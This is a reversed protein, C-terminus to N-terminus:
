GRARHVPLARRGFIRQRRAAPLRRRQPQLEGESIFHGDGDATVTEILTNDLYIEVSSGPIASGEFTPHQDNTTYGDKLGSDTAETLKITPSDVDANGRATTSPPLIAMRTTM